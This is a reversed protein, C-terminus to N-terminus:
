FETKHHTVYTINVNVVVHIYFKCLNLHIIICQCKYKLAFEMHCEHFIWIFKTINLTCIRSINDHWSHSEEMYELILQLFDLIQHRKSLSVKLFYFFNVSLHLYIILKLTTLAWLPASNSICAPHRDNAYLEFINFNLGFLFIWVPANWLHHRSVRFVWVVVKTWSFLKLCRTLHYM